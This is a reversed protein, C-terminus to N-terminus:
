KEVELCKASIEARMEVVHFHKSPDELIWIYTNPAINKYQSQRRAVDKWSLYATTFGVFAIGSRKALQLIQSVKHDDVEGDSTVAEIVWISNRAKNVLLVDPMADALTIEIGADYLAKAEDDSVRQGDEVDVFVTLYDALFNPVYIEQCAIILERHSSDITQRTLKEADAQLRLRERLKDEHIWEELLKEWDDGSKLIEVFESSLKYGLNPSKPVPHGVVFKRSKPELYIPIIAGIGRLPKIWYDRGERDLKTRGGRQLIGVHAGVHATTAGDSFKSGEPPKKYFSDTENDLLAFVADVMDDSARDIRSLVRQIKEKTVGQFSSPIPNADYTEREERINRVLSELSM